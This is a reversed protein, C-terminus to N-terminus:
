YRQGFHDAFTFFDDFDISGDDNLDYAADFLSEGSRSGFRDAFQFFDDFGVASDGDFDGPLPTQVSGPQTLLVPEGRNARTDAAFRLIARAGSPSEPALQFVLNLLDGEGSLSQTGAVSIALLDEDEGPLVNALAMFGATKLLPSQRAEVFTLWDEAYLIRIRLSVIGPDATGSLSLPVIVTEGPEAQVDPLALRVETAGSSTIVLLSTITCLIKTIANM